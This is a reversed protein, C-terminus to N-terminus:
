AVNPFIHEVFLQASNYFNFLAAKYASFYHKHIEIGNHFDRQMTYTSRVETSSMLGNMKFPFQSM